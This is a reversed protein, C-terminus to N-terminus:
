MLRYMVSSEIDNNSCIAAIFPVIACMGGSRPTPIGLLLTGDDRGISLLRASHYLLLNLLIMGLFFPLSFFLFFSFLSAM